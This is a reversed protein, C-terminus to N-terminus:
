WLLIRVAAVYAIEFAKNMIYGGFIKGHVNRDQLFSSSTRINSGTFVVSCDTLVQSWTTQTRTICGAVGRSCANVVCVRLCLAQCTCKPLVVLSRLGVRLVPFV